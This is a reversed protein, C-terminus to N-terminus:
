RSFYPELLDHAADHYVSRLIQAPLAKGVLAPADDEAYRDPDVMALDPDAIPSVGDHETELLTRMAWYRGAYLDFAEDRSAAKADMENDTSTTRLHEDATVIDSGFLVRGSFRTLFELLEARSHRSLERVMWKTASTDLYLNEHRQLLGTLFELDEPWGGMHAAIWPQDFRELLAELPEYQERKTGYRAVDTYRTRFWTDPDAVHTMFVMGLDRAAEMARIRHPADLRMFDPDGDAFEDAYDRGRPAAWFKVMRSGLEHYREIREVYGDGMHYARNEEAWYNPVATFRVRGELADRIMTVEELPTMSYTLSVGFLRAVDRYIAIAEEGGLHAHVDIIRVPPEALETAARGYDIGLRNSSNTRTSM